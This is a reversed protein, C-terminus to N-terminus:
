NWRNGAQLVLASSALAALAFLIRLAEAKLLAIKM